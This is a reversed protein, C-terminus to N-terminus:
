LPLKSFIATYIDREQENQTTSYIERCFEMTQVCLNQFNAQNHEQRYLQLAPFVDTLETQETAETGLASIAGYLTCLTQCDQMSITPKAKIKEIEAQIEETKSM